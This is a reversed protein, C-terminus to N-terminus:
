RMRWKGTVSGRLLKGEGTRLESVTELKSRQRLKSYYRPQITGPLYSLYWHAQSPRSGTLGNEAREGKVSKPFGAEDKAEDFLDEDKMKGEAM